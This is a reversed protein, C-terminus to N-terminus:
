VFQLITAGFQQARNVTGLTSKAIVVFNHHEQIILDSFRSLLQMSKCLLEYLSFKIFNFYSLFIIEIFLSIITQKLELGNNHLGQGGGGSRFGKRCRHQKKILYM